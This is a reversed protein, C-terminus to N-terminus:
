TSAVCGSRGRPSRRRGIPTLWAASMEPDFRHNDLCRGRGFRVLAQDGFRECAPLRLQSSAITLTLLQCVLAVPETSRGQEVPM